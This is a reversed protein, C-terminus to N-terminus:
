ASVEANLSLVFYNDADCGSSVVYIRMWHAVIDGSVCEKKDGAGDEYMLSGFPGIVYNFWNARDHSFQVFIQIDTPTATVDLDILLLFQKFAACEFEQSTFTEGSSNFTVANLFQVSEIRKIYALYATKIKGDRDDFIQVAESFVDSGKM